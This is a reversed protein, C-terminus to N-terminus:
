RTARASEWFSRIGAAEGVWRAVQDALVAAVLAYARDMATAEDAGDALLESLRDFEPDERYRWYHLDPVHFHRVTAFLLDTRRECSDRLHVGPVELFWDAERLAPHEAGRCAERGHLHVVVGHLLAEDPDQGPGV